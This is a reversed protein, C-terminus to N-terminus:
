PLTAVQNTVSVKCYDAFTSHYMAKGQVGVMITANRETWKDVTPTMLLPLDFQAIRNVTDGFKLRFQKQTIALAILEDVLAKSTTNFKFVGSFSAEIIDEDHDTPVLDGSMFALNRKADFDIKFEQATATLATSGMTGAWTDMFMGGALHYNHLPTQARNTLAALTVTTTQGALYEATYKVPERPKTELSLKNLLAGTYKYNPGGAIADGVEITYRRLTPLTTRYAGYAYVYPGAGSPTAIGFLADLHYPLDQYTAKGALSVSCMQGDFVAVSGPNLAGAQDALIEASGDVKVKPYDDLEALRATAAVPTFATVEKGLQCVILRKNSM